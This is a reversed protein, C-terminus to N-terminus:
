FDIFRNYNENAFGAKIILASVGFLIRAKLSTRRQKNIATRDLPIKMKEARRHGRSLAGPNVGIKSEVRIQARLGVWICRM